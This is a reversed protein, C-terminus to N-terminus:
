RLVRGHDRTEIRHAKVLADFEERDYLIISTDPLKHFPMGVRDARYQALRKPTKGTLKSLEDPTMWETAM